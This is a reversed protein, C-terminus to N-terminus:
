TKTVPKDPFLSNIDLHTDLLIVLSFNGM